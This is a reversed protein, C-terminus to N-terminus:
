SYFVEETWHNIMYEVNGFSLQYYSWWLFILFSDIENKSSICSSIKQGICGDHSDNIYKM